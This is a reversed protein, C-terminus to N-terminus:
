FSYMQSIRGFLIYLYQLDVHGAKPDLFYPKSNATNAWGLRVEDMM